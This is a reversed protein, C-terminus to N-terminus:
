RTPAHRHFLSQDGPEIIAEIIRLYENELRVHHRPEQTVPVIIEEAAHAPAPVWALFVGGCCGCAFQRRTVPRTPMITM